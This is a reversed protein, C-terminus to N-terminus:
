RGADIAEKNSGLVHESRRFALPLPYRKKMTEDHKPMKVLAAPKEEYMMEQRFMVLKGWVIPNTANPQVQVHKKQKHEVFRTPEGGPQVPNEGSMWLDKNRLPNDNDAKNSHEWCTKCYILRQMKWFMHDEWDQSAYMTLLRRICYHQLRVSEENTMQDRRHLQIKRVDTRKKMTANSGESLTARHRETQIDFGSSRAWLRDVPQKNVLKTAEQWFFFCSMPDALVHSLRAFMGKAAM